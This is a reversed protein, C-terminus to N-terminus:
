IKPYILNSQQGSILKRKNTNKWIKDHQIPFIVYRNQEESLLIEQGSMIRITYEM